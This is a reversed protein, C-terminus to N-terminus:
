PTARLLLCSRGLMSVREGACISPGTITDVGTTDLVLDYHEAWVGGPLTVETGDAGAHLWLLYSGDTVQEGHWERSRIGDGALYVGLTRLSEDHWTDDTM